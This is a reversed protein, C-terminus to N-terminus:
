ERKGLEKDLMLLGAGSSGVMELHQVVKLTSAEEEIQENEFWDLLPFSAYDSVEHALKVLNHIKGTIFKEHEWAAKWADLPSGWESKPESIAKLTVRGDREVIHDFFKGAHKLEEDAQKRMWRAMGELNKSYFYAAMAMYIYSSEDELKIQDNM